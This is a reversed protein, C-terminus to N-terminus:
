QLRFNVKVKGLNNKLMNKKIVSNIKCILDNYRIKIQEVPIDDLVNIELIKVNDKKYESFIKKDEIFGLLIKKRNVWLFGINFDNYKFFPIQYKRTHVINKNISLILTRLALLCERTLEDQKAYYNDFATLTEM